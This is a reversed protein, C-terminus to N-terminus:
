KRLADLRAVYYDIPRLGTDSRRFLSRLEGAKALREVEEIPASMQEALGAFSRTNSYAAPYAGVQVASVDFLDMEEVTREAVEDDSWTWTDKSARFAFSSDRIDGRQVLEFVDARHDPVDVEYDLGQPGDTLRLTGARLTGLLFQPDHNLLANTWDTTRVSGTAIREIFGMDRSPSDYVIARGAIVKKDGDAARLASGATRIEHEM